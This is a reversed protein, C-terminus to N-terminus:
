YHVRRRPRRPRLKGNVLSLVNCVIFMLRWRWTTLKHRPHSEMIIPDMLATRHQWKDSRGSPSTPTPLANIKDALTQHLGYQGLTPGASHIQHHQAHQTADSRTSTENMQRGGNYQDWHQTGNGYYAWGEQGNYVAQPVAVGNTIYQDYQYNWQAAQNYPHGPPYTSTHLGGAHQHYWQGEGPQGAVQALGNARQHEHYDWGATNQYYVHRNEDSEDATSNGQDVVTLPVATYGSGYQGATAM